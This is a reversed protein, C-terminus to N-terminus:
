FSTKKGQMELLQRLNFDTTESQFEYHPFCRKKSFVRSLQRIRDERLDWALGGNQTWLLCQELIPSVHTVLVAGIGGGGWNRQKQLGLCLVRISAEIKPHLFAKWTRGAPLLLRSEAPIELAAERANTLHLNHVPLNYLGCIRKNPNWLLVARCPWIRLAHQWCQLILPPRCIEAAATKNQPWM